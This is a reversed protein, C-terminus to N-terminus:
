AGAELCYRSAYSPRPLDILLGVFVLVALNSSPAAQLALTRLQGVGMSSCSSEKCGIRCLRSLIPCWIAFFCGYARRFDKRVLHLILSM